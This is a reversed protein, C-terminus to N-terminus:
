ITPGQIRNVDKAPHKNIKREATLNLIAFEIEGETPLTDISM